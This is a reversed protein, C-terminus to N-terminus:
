RFFVTRGGGSREGRMKARGNTTVQDTAWTAQETAAAGSSWFGSPPSLSSLIWKEQSTVSKAAAEEKRM